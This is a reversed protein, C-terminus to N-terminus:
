DGISFCSLMLHWLNYEMRPPCVRVYNNCHYTWCTNCQAKFLPFHGSLLCTWWSFYNLQSKSWYRKKKREFTASIGTAATFSKDDRHHSAPRRSSHARGSQTHYANPTGWYQVGVRGTSDCHFSFIFPLSVQPDRGPLLNADQWGKRRYKGSYVHGLFRM